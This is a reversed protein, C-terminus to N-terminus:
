EIVLWSVPPREKQKVTVFSGCLGESFTCLSASCANWSGVWLQEQSTTHSHCGFTCIYRELGGIVSFRLSLARFVIYANFYFFSSIEPAVSEGVPIPFTVGSLLYVARFSASPLHTSRTYWVRLCEVFGHSSYIISALRLRIAHGTTSFQTARPVEM